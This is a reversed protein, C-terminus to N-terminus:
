TKQVAISIGAIEGTVNELVLQGTASNINEATRILSEAAASGFRAAQFRREKAGEVAGEVFQLATNELNGGARVTDQVLLSASKQLASQAQAENFKVSRTIGLAIGKAVRGLDGDTNEASQVAAHIVDTLEDEVLKSGEEGHKSYLRAIVEVFIGAIPMVVEGGTKLIHELELKVSNQLTHNAM